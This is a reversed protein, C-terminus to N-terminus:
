GAVDPPTGLRSVAQQFHRSEACSRDWKTRTSQRGQDTSGVCLRDPDVAIELRQSERRLANPTRTTVDRRHPGRRGPRGIESKCPRRPEWTAWPQARPGHAASVVPGTAAPVFPARRTRLVPTHPRDNWRWRSASHIARNTLAGSATLGPASIGACSAAQGLLLQAGQHGVKLCEPLSLDPNRPPTKIVLSHPRSM